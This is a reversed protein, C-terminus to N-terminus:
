TQGADGPATSDQRAAAVLQTIADALAMAEPLALKVVEKVGGHVGDYLEIEPAAQYLDLCYPNARGTDDKSASAHIVGRGANHWGDDSPSDHPEECWPPCPNPASALERIRGALEAAEAITFETWDDSANCVAITPEAAGPELGLQVTLPYDGPYSRPPDCPASAYQVVRAARHRYGQFNPQGPMRDASDHGVYNEGEVKTNVTCWPPCGYHEPPFFAAPAHDEPSRSAEAVAHPGSIGLEAAWSDVHLWIPDAGGDIAWDHAAAVEAITMATIAQDRTLVRGPLWTVTWGGGAARATHRTQDSSMEGDSIKTGLTL